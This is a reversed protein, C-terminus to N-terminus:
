KVREVKLIKVPPDLMQGKMPGEGKTPSVPAALIAKVVDMGEIVQGFAAFGNSGDFAPIDITEIFFDAQAKGPALAAMAISGAKNQIGTKESSEFAVPPNLKRADSTIGGQILGGDGYPMARYFSEGDFKHSDVYRLFNETTLPAHLRDLAVVIRGLSTDIAVPVYDTRIPPPALDVSTAQAFAPASSAALLLAIRTLM